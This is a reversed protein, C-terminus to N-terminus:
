KGGTIAKLMKLQMAMRVMSSMGTGGRRSYRRRKPMKIYVTRGTTAKVMLLGHTRGLVTGGTLSSQRGASSGTAAGLAGGALQVGATALGGWDFGMNSGEQKKSSILGVAVAGLASSPGGGALTVTVDEGTVVDRFGVGHVLKDWLSQDKPVIRDRRGALLDADIEEFTKPTNGLVSQADIEEFTRPTNGLPAVPAKEPEPDGVYLPESDGVFHAGQAIANTPMKSLAIDINEGPSTFSLEGTRTNRWYTYPTFDASNPLPANVWEEWGDDTYRHDPEWQREGDRDVYWYGPRVRIESM